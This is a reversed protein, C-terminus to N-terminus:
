PHEVHIKGVVLRGDAARAQCTAERKGMICQGKAAFELEEDGVKLNLHNIAITDPDVAMGFFSAMTTDDSLRNFQVSNEGNNFDVFFAAKCPADSGDVEIKCTRHDALLDITSTVEPTAPRRFTGNLHIDGRQMHTADVKIGYERFTSSEGSPTVLPAAEFLSSVKRNAVSQLANAFENGYKTGFARAISECEVLVALVSNELPFNAKSLM